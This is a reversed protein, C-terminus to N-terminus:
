HTQITEHIESEIKTKNENHAIALQEFEKTVIALEAHLADSEVKQIHAQYILQGMRFIKKSMEEQIEQITKNM